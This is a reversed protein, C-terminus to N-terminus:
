VSTTIIVEIGRGMFECGADDRQGVLDSDDRVVVERGDRVLGSDGGDNRGFGEGLRGAEVLVLHLLVDGKVEGLETKGVSDVSSQDLAV